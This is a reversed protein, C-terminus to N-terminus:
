PAWEDGSDGETREIDTGSDDVEIKFLKKGQGAQRSRFAEVTCTTKIESSSKKRTKWLEKFGFQSKDGFPGQEEGNDLRSKPQNTALVLAENSQAYKKLRGTIFQLMQFVKFQDADDEVSYEDYQMLAPFGISDLIIVDYGPQLTNSNTTNEGFPNDSLMHAKNGVYAYLDDWEPIHIYDIEGIRENDTLNRETDIFLIDKDGSNYASSALEMAFETKASGTEGFVQITDPGGCFDLVEEILSRGSDTSSETQSNDTETSSDEDNLDIDM